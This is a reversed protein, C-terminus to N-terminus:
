CINQSFCYGSCGHNLCADFSYGCQTTCHFSHCNTSTCNSTNCRPCGSKPSCFIACADTSAWAGRGGILGFGLGIALTKGLKGLFSRRNQLAADEIPEM